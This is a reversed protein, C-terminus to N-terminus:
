RFTCRNLFNEKKRRTKKELYNTGGTVHRSLSELVGQIETRVGDGWTKKWYGRGGEGRGRRDPIDVEGEGKKVGKKGLILTKQIRRPLAIWHPM